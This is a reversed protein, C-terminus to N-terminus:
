VLAVWLGLVCLGVLIAATWRSHMLRAMWSDAYDEIIGYKRKAEEIRKEYDKM